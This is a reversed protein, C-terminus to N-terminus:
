AAGANPGSSVTCRVAPGEGAPPDAGPKAEFPVPFVRGALGATHSLRTTDLCAGAGDGRPSRRAQPWGKPARQPPVAARLTSLSLARFFWTRLSEKRLEAALAELQRAEALSQKVLEGTWEGTSGRRPPLFRPTSSLRRTRFPANVPLQSLKVVEGTLTERHALKIIYGAIADVDRPRDIWAVPGFGASVITDRLDGTVAHQGGRRRQKIADALGRSRLIVNVHPWGSRHQETTKVYSSPGYKRRISQILTTWKRPLEAFASSSTVGKEAEEGQALTVVLYVLEEPDCLELGDRIRAFDTAAVSRACKPCRWSGCTFPIRVVEGTKKNTLPIHWADKICAQSSKPLLAMVAQRGVGPLPLPITKLDEEGRSGVPVLVPAAALPEERGDLTLQREVALLDFQRAFAGTENVDGDRSRLQRLAAPPARM